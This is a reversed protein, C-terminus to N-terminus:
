KPHENQLWLAYNGGVAAGHGITLDVHQLGFYPTPVQKIAGSEWLEPLEPFNEPTKAIGKAHERLQYNTLHIKGISATRYGAEALAAPMTPTSRDLPIGNTRVRHGRPTQGTFMTARSPMCLPCNVYARSLNVGGAALKDLNPTRIVPNGACGMHDARMQDTCIILFNPRSDAM